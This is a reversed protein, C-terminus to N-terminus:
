LKVRDLLKRVKYGIPTSGGLDGRHGREESVRKAVSIAAVRRPQTIGIRPSTLTQPAPEAAPAANKETTSAAALPAGGKQLLLDLDEPDGGGGGNTSAPNIAPPNPKQQRWDKAASPVPPTPPVWGWGAHNDLLYQPVQTTKGSGTEAVVILFDNSGRLSNVVRSRYEWIPLKETFSRLEAIQRDDPARPPALPGTHPSTRPSGVPPPAGATSSSAAASM